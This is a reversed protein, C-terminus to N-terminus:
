QTAAAPPGAVKKLRTVTVERTPPISGLLQPVAVRRHITDMAYGAKAIRDFIVSNAEQDDMLVLVAPERISQAFEPIEDDLVVLDPDVLRLNGAWFWSSIVTRVPGDSTLQGYLSPYDMRVIRGRNEGGYLQM